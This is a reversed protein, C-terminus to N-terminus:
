MESRGDIRKTGIMGLRATEEDERHNLGKALQVYRLGQGHGIGRAIIVEIEADTVGRIMAAVSTRVGQTAGTGDVIMTTAMGGRAIMGRMGGDQRTDTDIRMEM